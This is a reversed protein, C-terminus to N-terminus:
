RADGKIFASLGKKLYGIRKVPTPDTGNLVALYFSAYDGIYILSFIRALLTKGKSNVEIFEVGTKKLIRRVLDMRKLVRPHDARDKLIIIVNDKAIHKPYEWGVIDNHTMEPFLNGSALTKSNEAFQGRWRTAISDTNCQSGYIFPSKGFLRDAIKKAENARSKIKYGISREKLKRLNSIADEIFVGQDKIMGLKSLLILLPFFSYGLAARPPLGAPINIVAHGDSKATSELKGGSTIAVIGCGRSQADDYASLVEETNGSYSSSIVLTDYEVFNPLVYDRIVFFPIELDDKLYSRALDAGIASGGMGICVINKYKTKFGLPPDFEYGIRKADCCQDPFAEIIGLMGSRDCKEINNLSDLYKLRKNSSWVSM